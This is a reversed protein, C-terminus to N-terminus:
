MRNHFGPFLFSSPLISQILANCEMLKSKAEVFNGNANKLAVVCNAQTQSTERRLTEILTKSLESEDSNIITVPKPEQIDKSPSSEINRCKQVNM